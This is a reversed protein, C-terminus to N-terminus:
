KVWYFIVICCIIGDIICFLVMNRVVLMMVKYGIGVVFCVFGFKGRLFLCKLIDVYKYKFINWNIVLIYKCSCFM